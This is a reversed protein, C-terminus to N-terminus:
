RDTGAWDLVARLVGRAGEARADNIVAVLALRQGSPTQVVGAMAVVDDLSGTKLHARGVAATMRRATGDV